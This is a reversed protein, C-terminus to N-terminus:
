GIQRTLRDAEARIQLEVEWGERRIRMDLYSLYRAVAFFSTVIWMAMPVCVLYMWEGFEWHHSFLGCLYWIALSMGATMAGAFLLSVLWRGLQNGRSGAHLVQSRQWTTIRGRGKTLPNRELLIVENLYPWIVFPMWWFILAWIMWIPGMFLAPIFIFGRLLIQFFFLQPLSDILDRVIQRVPPRDVFLAHGFYRTVAASALPWEWVVLVIMMGVYVSWDRQDIRNWIPRLLLWNLLALPIAGVSSAIIWPLAYARILQLSLDLVDLLDRERIAIRTNDLQM